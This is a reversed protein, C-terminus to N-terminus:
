SPHRLDATALLRSVEAVPCEMFEAIEELSCGHKALRKVWGIKSGEAFGEAEAAYLEDREDVLKMQYRFYAHQEAGTMKSINLKDAVQQMYPSHFVPPVKCNKMVYLWDDIETELHNNFNPICIFFYEPFVDAANNLVEETRIEKVLGQGHYIVGQGYPSCLSSYTPYLLSIHFVKVIGNHHINETLHDVTLRSTSFCAKRIFTHKINREIAVIYKNHKDDEIIVSALNRQGVEEKREIDLFYLIKVEGYGRSKLLASIFGEVIESDNKHNLLYRIAYDFNMLPKDNM